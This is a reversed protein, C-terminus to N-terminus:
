AVHRNHSRFCIVTQFQASPEISFYRKIVKGCSRIFYINWCEAQLLHVHASYWSYEFFEVIKRQSQFRDFFALQEDHNSVSKGFGIKHNILIIKTSTLQQFVQLSLGAAFFCFCPPVPINLWYGINPTTQIKLKKGSETWKQNVSKSKNIMTRHIPPKLRWTQSIFFLFASTQSFPSRTM